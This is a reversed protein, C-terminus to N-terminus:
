NVETQMENWGQSIARGNCELCVLIPSHWHETQWNDERRPWNLTQLCASYLWHWWTMIIRVTAVQNTDCSRSQKSLWPLPSILTLHTIPLPEGTEQKRFMANDAPTDQSLLYIHTKFKCPKRQLTVGFPGKPTLHDLGWLPKIIHDRNM